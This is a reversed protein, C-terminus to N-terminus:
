KKNIRNNIGRAPEPPLPPDGQGPAARNASTVMDTGRREHARSDLELDARCDTRYDAQYDARSTSSADAGVGTGAGAGANKKRMRNALKRVAAEFMNATDDWTPTGAVRRRAGEKLRTLLAPRDIIAALAAALREVERAATFRDAERRAVERERAPRILLSGHGGSFRRSGSFRRGGSRGVAEPIGGCARAVVPVGAARAELCSMGFSEFGSFSILVDSTALEALADDHSLPGLDRFRSGLAGGYDRVFNAYWSPDAARDGCVTWVFDRGGLALLARAIRDQGKNPTWNALTIFRTPAEPEPSKARIRGAPGRGGVGPGVVAVGAGPIGRRRLEGAMFRSPVVFGAAGALFAEEAELTAADPAASPDLSPLYHVLALWTRPPPLPMWRSSIWISDVLKIEPLDTRTAASVEPQWSLRAVGREALRSNYIYGGSLFPGPDPALIVPM